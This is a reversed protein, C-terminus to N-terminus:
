NKKYISEMEELVSNLSFERIKNENFKGFQNLLKRSFIHKIAESLGEVDNPSFLLGGKNKEILDVNGRINSCIIPLGSSMAEMLSVSLGERFSPFIFLDAINYIEAVDQRLGLLHIQNSVGLEKSLNILYKKLEGKGCIVYHINPNNLRAIARIVVEHNKNKNLEGVSLFVTSDKPVEIEKRKVERNIIIKKFKDIDLGVGPVYEIKKAKFHKKALNFDEKNITILTDTYKSLYREIPYYILWNKIPAGKYFHLGHATYIVRVQKKKKCALRVITSAVPTHTHVLDYEEEAILNKILKYAEFNRTSKPSRQFPIDYVRCGMDKIEKNVEYVIHFALDVQHGENILMRIHPILFANATNSLTTVYLIKM